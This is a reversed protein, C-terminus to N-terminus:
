VRNQAGMEVGSITSLRVVLREDVNSLQLGIARHRLESATVQAHLEEGSPTKIRVSEGVAPAVSAEHAQELIFWRGPRLNSASEDSVIFSDVITFEGLM